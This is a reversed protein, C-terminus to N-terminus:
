IGPVSIKGWASIRTKGTVPNIFGAICIGAGDVQGSYRDAVAFLQQLFSEPDKQTPEEGCELEEYSGNLISYKVVTGGIDITLYRQEVGM